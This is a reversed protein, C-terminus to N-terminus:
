SVGEARGKRVAERVGIGSATLAVIGALTIPAWLVFHVVFAYAIAADLPVGLAVASQRAFFDFTGVHGPTGPIMTALTAAGLIAPAAAPPLGLGMARAVAMFMVAECGWAALSLAILRALRRPARLIELAGVVRGVAGAAGRRGRLREWVRAPTALAAAFALTCAIGAAAASYVAAQPVRHGGLAAMGLAFSAVLAGLDLMREAVLSGLVEPGPVGLRERFAFARALDGARLPLLNNLAFGALLPGACAAATVDTRSSRLLDRWRLIRAAYGAALAAVAASLWAPSAQAMATRVAGADIGRLALWLFFLGVASGAAVSLVKRM